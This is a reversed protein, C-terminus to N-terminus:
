RCRVTIANSFDEAAASLGAPLQRQDAPIAALRAQLDGDPEKRRAVNLTCGEAAGALAAPRTRQLTFAVFYEPDYVEIKVPAARADVPAALPLTFHLTLRTGDWDLWYDAPASFIGAGSAKGGATVFTFFDYEELSEVNIQALPKLEDRSLKGDGDTDLGQIALASFADDFTWVHRVAALRGARMVLESRADVLV